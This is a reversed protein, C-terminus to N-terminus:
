DTRQGRGKRWTGKGKGKGKGPEAGWGTRPERSLVAETRGASLPRRGRIRERGDGGDGHIGENFGDHVDGSQGGDGRVGEVGEGHGPLMGVGAGCGWGGPAGVAAPSADAVRSFLILFFVFFFALFPAPCPAVTM